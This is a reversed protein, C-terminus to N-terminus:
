ATTNDAPAAPEDDRAFFGMVFTAVVYVLQGLPILFIVVLALNAITQGYAPLLNGAQQLVWAIAFFILVPSLLALIVMLLGVMLSACGTRYERVVVTGEETRRSASAVALIIEFSLTMASMWCIWSFTDAYNIMDSGTFYRWAFWYAVSLVAAPVVRRAMSASRGRLESASRRQIKPM